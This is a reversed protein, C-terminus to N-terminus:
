NWSVIRFFVLLVYIDITSSNAEPSYTNSKMLNPALCQKFISQILYNSEGFAIQELCM